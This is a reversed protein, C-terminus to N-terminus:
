HTLSARIKSDINLSTIKARKKPCEVVAAGDCEWCKTEVGDTYEVLQTGGSSDKRYGYTVSDGDKYSVSKSDPPCALLFTVSDAFAATAIFFSSLVFSLCFVKKLM